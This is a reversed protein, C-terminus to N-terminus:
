PYTQNKDEKVNAVHLLFNPCFYKRRKLSAYLTRDFTTTIVNWNKNPINKFQSIKAVRALLENFHNKYRSTTSPHLFLQLFFSFLNIRSSTWLIKRLPFNRLTSCSRSLPFPFNHQLQKLASSFCSSDSELFSFNKQRRNSGFLFENFLRAFLLFIWIKRFKEWSIDRFRVNEERADIWKRTCREGRDPFM